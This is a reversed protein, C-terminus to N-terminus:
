RITILSTLKGPEEDSEQECAEFGSITFTADIDVEFEPMKFKCIDGLLQDFPFEPVFDAITLASSFPFSIGLAELLASEASFNAIFSQAETVMDILGSLSGAANGIINMFSLTKAQLENLRTANEDITAVIGEALKTKVSTALSAFQTDIKSQLNMGDINLSISTNSSAPFNPTCNASISSSCAGATSLSFIRNFQSENFSLAMMGGCLNSVASQATSLFNKYSNNTYAGWERFGSRQYVSYAFNANNQANSAGGVINPDRQADLGTWESPQQLTRVQWLGVSPGWKTPRGDAPNEADPNYSSEAGAIATATILDQGRFGANYALRAALAAGTYGDTSVSEGIDCEEPVEVDEDPEVTELDDKIEYDINEAAKTKISKTTLSSIGTDSISVVSEPSKLYVAGVKGGKGGEPNDGNKGVSELVIDEGISKMDITKQAGIDMKGGFSHMQADGDAMNRMSGLAYKRVDGQVFENLNGSVTLNYDGTNTLINIEDQVQLYLSKGITECKKGGIEVLTDEVSLHRYNKETIVHIDDIAHIRIQGDAPIEELSPQNDKTGSFMHIGQKAHVRFTAETSLNIDNKANISVRNESFMDINGSNDMELWSKGKATSIYIRENTDDLLVQHGSISRIKIRNNFPRDDLVIM